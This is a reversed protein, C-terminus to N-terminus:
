YQRDAKPFIRYSISRCCLDRCTLIAALTCPLYDWLKDRDTNRAHSPCSVCINSISRCFSPSHCFEDLLLLIKRPGPPRPSPALRIPFTPPIERVITSAIQHLIVVAIVCQISTKINRTPRGLPRSLATDQIRLDPRDVQVSLLAESSSHGRYIHQGRSRPTTRSELHGFSFRSFM